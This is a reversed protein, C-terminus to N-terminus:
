EKCIEWGRWCGWNARFRAMWITARCCETKTWLCCWFMAWWRFFLQFSMLVVYLRTVSGGKCVLAMPCDTDASFRECISETCDACFLMFIIWMLVCLFKSLGNYVTMLAAHETQKIRRHVRGFVDSLLMTFLAIMEVYSVLFSAFIHILIQWRLMIIWLRRQCFFLLTFSRIYRDPCGLSTPM